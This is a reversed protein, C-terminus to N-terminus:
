TWYPVATTPRGDAVREEDAVCYSERQDGGAGAADSTSAPESRTRSTPTLSSPPCPTSPVGDPSVGADFLFRHDRGNKTVTVLVSFGHEAILADPVQGGDMVAAPRWPGVPRVRHAPGQDPMLMDTVNDMLTTVVVSDVPELDIEIAPETEHLVSPFQSGPSDDTCVAGDYSCCWGARQVTM